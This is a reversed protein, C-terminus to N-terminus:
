PGGGEPFQNQDKKSVTGGGYTFLVSRLCFSRLQLYFLRMWFNNKTIKPIKCREKLGLLLVLKPIIADLTTSSNNLMLM